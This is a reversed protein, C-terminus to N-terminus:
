FFFPYFMENVEQLSHILTRYCVYNTSFKQHMEKLILLLIKKLFAVGCTSHLKTYSMRLLTILLLLCFCNFPFLNNNSASKIIWMKFFYLFFLYIFFCLCLILCLGIFCFLFRLFLCIKIHFSPIHYLNYWLNTPCFPNNQLYLHFIACKM